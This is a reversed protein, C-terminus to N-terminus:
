TRGRAGMHFIYWARADEPDRVAQQWTCREPCSSVFLSTVVNMQTSGIRASSSGSRGPRHVPGGTSGAGARQGYGGAQARGAAQWRGVAGRGRGGRRGGGGGGAAGGGGKSGGDYVVVPPPTSPLRSTPSLTAACGRALPCHRLTKMTRTLVGNAPNGIELTLASVGPSKTRKRLTDAPPAACNEHWTACDAQARRHSNQRRRTAQAVSPVSM